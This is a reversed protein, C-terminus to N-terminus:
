VLHSIVPLTCATSDFTLQSCDTFSSPITELARYLHELVQLFTRLRVRGSVPMLRGPLVPLVM